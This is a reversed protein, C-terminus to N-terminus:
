QGFTTLYQATADQATSLAAGIAANVGADGQWCDEHDFWYDGFPDCRAGYAYELADLMMPWLAKSARATAQLLQARTAHPAGSWDARAYSDQVQMAYGELHTHLRLPWDTAAFNATHMPQTMDTMYHLSLGLEYCGNWADGNALKADANAAHELARQKAVPSTKGRYNEGSDPDYFHSEWTAGSLAIRWESAGPYLNSYGDHYPAKYDADFLGQQWRSQCVPDTLREYAAAASPQDTHRSLIDIARDVIWLHTSSAEEGTLATEWRIVGPPQDVEAPVEAAPSGVEVGPAIGSPSSDGDALCGPFLLAASSLLFAPVVLTRHPSM